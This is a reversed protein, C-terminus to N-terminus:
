FFESEQDMIMIGGFIWIKYIFFQMCDGKSYEFHTNHIICFFLNQLKRIKM